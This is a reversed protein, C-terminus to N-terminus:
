ETLLSLVRFRWLLLKLQFMVLNDFHRNLVAVFCQISKIVHNSLLMTSSVVMDDDVESDMVATSLKLELVKASVDLVKTYGILSTILWLVLGYVRLLLFAM